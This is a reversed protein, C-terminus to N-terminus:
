MRDAKFITNKAKNQVWIKFDNIDTFESADIVAMVYLENRMFDLKQRAREVLVEADRGIGYARVSLKLRRDAIELLSDILSCCEQVIPDSEAKFQEVLNKTNELVREDETTEQM